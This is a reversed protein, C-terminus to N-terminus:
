CDPNRATVCLLYDTFHSLDKFKLATTIAEEYDNNAIEEISSLGNGSEVVVPIAGAACAAQMDSISDGVVYANKLNCKLRKSLELLMGPAPKRCQCRDDASHPCFFIADIEGGSHHLEDLMKQHIQNLANISYLGKSIGSQNTIVVVRYDERCLRSIAELSGPIAVWEQPSKIGGDAIENIVGDRGLIILKRNM